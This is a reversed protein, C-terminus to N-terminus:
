STSFIFYTVYPLLIICYIVHMIFIIIPILIILIIFMFNSQCRHHYQHYHYLSSASIITHHYHHHHRREYPHVLIELDHRFAILMDVNLTDQVSLIDGLARFVLLGVNWSHDSGVVLNTACVKIVDAYEM